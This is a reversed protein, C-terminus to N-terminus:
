RAAAAPRPPGTRLASWATALLLLFFLPMALRMGAFDPSAPLESLRGNVSITRSWRAKELRDGVKVRRWLAAEVQFMSGGDIGVLLVDDIWPWKENRGEMHTVTGSLALPVADRTWTVLLNAACLVGGVVVLLVLPWRPRAPATTTSASPRHKATTATTTDTM